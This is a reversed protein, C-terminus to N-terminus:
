APGPSYAHPLLDPTFHPRSFLFTMSAGLADTQARGGPRQRSIRMLLRRSPRNRPVAINMLRRLGGSCTVWCRVLRLERVGLGAGIGAVLRSVPLNVCGSGAAWAFHGSTLLLYRSDFLADLGTPWGPGGSAEPPMGCASLNRLHNVPRSNGAAPRDRKRGHEHRRRDRSAM